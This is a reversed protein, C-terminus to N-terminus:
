HGGLLQSYSVRANSTVPGYMDIRKIVLNLSVSASTRAAFLKCDLAQHGHSESLLALVM